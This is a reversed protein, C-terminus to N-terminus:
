RAKREYASTSHIALHHTPFGFRLRYMALVEEHDDFAAVVDSPQANRDALAQQVLDYKLEQSKRHDKNDRMYLSIEFVNYDRMMKGFASNLWLQTISRTIDPRATIFVPVANLKLWHEFVGQNKARDSGCVTHYNRYRVWPDPHDWDIYQIRWEDDALCNDIDWLTIARKVITIDKDSV